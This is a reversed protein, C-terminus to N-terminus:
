VQALVHLVAQGLLPGVQHGEIGHGIGFALFQVTEEGTLAGLERGQPTGPDLSGAAGDRPREAPQRVFRGRFQEVLQQVPQRRLVDAHSEHVSQPGGLRRVM